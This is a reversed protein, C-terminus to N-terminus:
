GQYGYYDHHWTVTTTMNLIYINIEMSFLYFIWELITSIFLLKKTSLKQFIYKYDSLETKQYFIRYVGIRNSALGCYAASGVITKRSFHSSLTCRRRTNPAKSVSRKFTKYQRGRLYTIAFTLAYPKWLSVTLIQKNSDLM